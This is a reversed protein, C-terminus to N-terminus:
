LVFIHAALKPIKGRVNADWDICDSTQKIDGIISRTDSILGELDLNPKLYKKILGEYTTHLEDYRKEL